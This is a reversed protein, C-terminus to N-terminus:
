CVKYAWLTAVLGTFVLPSLIAPHIGSLLSTSFNRFQVLTHSAARSPLQFRICSTMSKGTSDRSSLHQGRTNQSKYSICACPPIFAGFSQASPSPRSGYHYCARVSYSTWACPPRLLPLRHMFTAKVHVCNILEVDSDTIFKSLRSEHWALESVYHRPM